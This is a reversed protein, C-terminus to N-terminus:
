RDDSHCRAAGYHGHMDNGHQTESRKLVTRGERDYVAYAIAASLVLAIPYVILWIGPLVTLVELAMVVAIVFAIHWLRVTRVFAGSVLSRDETVM